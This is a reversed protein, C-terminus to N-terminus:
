FKNTALNIKGMGDSAFNNRDIETHRPVQESIAGQADYDGSALLAKSYGEEIKHHKGQKRFKKSHQSSSWKVTLFHISWM